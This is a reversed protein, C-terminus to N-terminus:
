FVESLFFPLRFRSVAVDQSATTRKIKGERGKGQKNSRPIILIRGKEAPRFVLFDFITTHPRNLLLCPSREKKERGRERQREGGM